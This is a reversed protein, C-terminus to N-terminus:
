IPRMNRRVRLTERDLEEGLQHYVEDHLDGRSRLEHLVRREREFLELLLARLQQESPDLPSYANSELNPRLRNIQREYRREFDSLLSEGYKNMARLQALHKKAAEAMALRAKVEDDQRETGNELNLFRLLLPLTTTPIILTLVIVAYTLFLLLSREEFRNGDSLTLPLALAAALSVIGRMGTWGIVILAGVSPMPDRQALGPILVRPIWAAPFVWLFRIAIIAATLILSWICLQGLSFGDLGSLITPLQLGILTFVLANVALLVVDWLARAKL